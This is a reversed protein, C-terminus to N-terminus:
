FRSVIVLHHKRFFRLCAHRVSTLALSLTLRLISCRRIHTRLPYSPTLSAACPSVDSHFHHCSSHASFPPSHFISSLLRCAAFPLLSSPTSTALTSHRTIKVCRIASVFPSSRWLSVLLCSALHSTIARPHGGFRVPMEANGIGGQALAKRQAWRHM